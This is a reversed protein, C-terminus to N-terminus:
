LVPTAGLRYFSHHEHERSGAAHAGERSLAEKLVTAIESAVRAPIGLMYFSYLLALSQCM